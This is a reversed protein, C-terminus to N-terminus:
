FPSHVTIVAREAVAQYRRIAAVQIRGVAKCSKVHQLAAGPRTSVATVYVEREKGIGSQSRPRIQFPVYSVGIRGIWLGIKASRLKSQKVARILKEARDGHIERDILM